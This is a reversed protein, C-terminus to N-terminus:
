LMILCYLVTIQLSCDAGTRRELSARRSVMDLVVSKTKLVFLTHAFSAFYPTRYCGYQPHYTTATLGVFQTRFM